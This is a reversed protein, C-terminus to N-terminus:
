FSKGTYVLRIMNITAEFRGSHYKGVEAQYNDHELEELTRKRLKGMIFAHQKSETNHKRLALLNEQDTSKLIGNRTTIASKRESYKFHDSYQHCVGCRLHYTSKGVTGIAVKGFSMM